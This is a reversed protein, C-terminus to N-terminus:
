MGSMQAYGVHASISLGTYSKGPGAGICLSCTEIILTGHIKIYPLHGGGLPYFYM